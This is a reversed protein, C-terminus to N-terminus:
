YSHTDTYQFCVKLTLVINFIIIDERFSSKAQETKRGRSDRYSMTNHSREKGMRSIHSRDVKKYEM